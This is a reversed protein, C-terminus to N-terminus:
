WNTCLHRRQAPRQKRPGWTIHSGKAFISGANQRSRFGTLQVTTELHLWKQKERIAAPLASKSADPRNHHIGSAPCAKNTNSGGRFAQQLEPFHLYAPVDYTLAFQIRHYETPPLALPNKPIPAGDAPSVVIRHLVAGYSTQARAFRHM